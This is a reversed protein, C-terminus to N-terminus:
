SRRYGRLSTWCGLLVMVAGIGIAILPGSSQRKLLFADEPSEPVVYATTTEGAEYGDIVDRAASETDYSQRVTAPYVDDATYTEGGYAYEFRVTPYHDVGTGSGSGDSEVGTELITASVPEADAIARQQQQYDFGGYGAVAAGLLVFLLGGRVPDIERGGVTIKSDSSV